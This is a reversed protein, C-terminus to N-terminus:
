FGEPQTAPPATKSDGTLDVGCSKFVALLDDRSQVGGVEALYEGNADYFFFYPKVKWPYKERTSEADPDPTLVNLRGAFEERMAKIVPKLQQCTTCNSGIYVLTPLGKQPQGADGNQRCDPNGCKYKYTIVVTAAAVLAVVIVIKWIKKM